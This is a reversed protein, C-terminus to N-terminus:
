SAESRAFRILEALSALGLKERMISTANTVTKATIGLRAAIRDYGHGEGLLRFIENERETLAPLRHAIKTRLMAVSVALDHALHPKGDLARGFAAAFEGSPADKLVYCLAGSALAQSVIAPDNHMSFVMLRTAPLRAAVRKLLALGALDDGAFTLDTVVIAPRLVLARRYGSAVSDASVVDDM